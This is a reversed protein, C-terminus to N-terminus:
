TLETLVDDVALLDSLIKIRHVMFEILLLGSHIPQQPSAVLLFDYAVGHLDPLAELM